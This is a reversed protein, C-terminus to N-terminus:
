RLLLHVRDLTFELLDTNEGLPPMDGGVCIVDVMAGRPTDGDRDEEEEKEAEVEAEM